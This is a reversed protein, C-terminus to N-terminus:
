AEVEKGLANKAAEAIYAGIRGVFASKPLQSINIESEVGDDHQAAYSRGHDGIGTTVAAAFSTDAIGHVTVSAGDNTDGDCETEGLATNVSLRYTSRASFELRPTDPHNCLSRIYNILIDSACYVHTWFAPDRSLGFSYWTSILFYFTVNYRTRFSM